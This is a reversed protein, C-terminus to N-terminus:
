NNSDIIKKLMNKNEKWIKIGVGLSKKSTGKHRVGPKLSYSVTFFDVSASVHSPFWEELCVAQCCLKVFFVVFFVFVTLCVSCRIEASSSWGVVVARRRHSLLIQVPYDCRDQGDKCLWYDAASRYGAPDTSRPLTKGSTSLRLAPAPGPLYPLSLAYEVFRLILFKLHPTQVSLWTNISDGQFSLSVLISTWWKYRQSMRPTFYIECCLMFTLRSAARRSEPLNDCASPVVHRWLSAFASVTLAWGLSMKLGILPPGSEAAAVWRVDNQQPPKKQGVLNVTRAQIPKEERFYVFTLFSSDACFDEGWTRRWIKRKTKWKM